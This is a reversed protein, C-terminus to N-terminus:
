RSYRETYLYLNTDMKRGVNKLGKGWVIRVNFSGYTIVKSFTTPFPSFASSKSIKGSGTVFSVPLPLLYPLSM